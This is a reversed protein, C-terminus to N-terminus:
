EADMVHDMKPPKPARKGGFLAQNWKLKWSLYERM